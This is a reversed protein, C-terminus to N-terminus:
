LEGGRQGKGSKGDLLLFEKGRSAGPGESFLKELKRRKPPRHRCNQNKGDGRLELARNGARSQKMGSLDVKGHGRPHKCSSGDECTGRARDGHLRDRGVKLLPM